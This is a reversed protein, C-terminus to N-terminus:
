EEVEGGQLWEQKGQKFSICTDKVKRADDKIKCWGIVGKYRFDPKYYTCFRCVKM